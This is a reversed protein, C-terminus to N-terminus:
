KWWGKGPKQQFGWRTLTEKIHKLGPDGKVWLSGGQPTKDDVQLGQRAAFRNLAARSYQQAPIDAAGAGAHAPLAQRPATAATPFRVLVPPASTRGAPAQVGPEIGFDERLRAEFRDEWQDWGQIGDQHSLWLAHVNADHKLSNEADVPLRLPSKTDFPLPRRVDYGYLAHSTGSFEVAVVKGFTMIFANNPGGAELHCIHGTMKKRLAVPERNWTSRAASGLAFEIHDIAKVYRKWFDMRRRDASGGEALKTFFTEIFELKLWDSVMARAQPVVGGWAVASSALWPNGWRLVSADRLGQHLATGPVKAYRDLLLTLGRDCLVENRHLLELLRPMLAQFQADALQTAGRIQALVLERPFWSAKSIGLEQSLLDLPGTDGSLVAQVHPECPHPGFLHKSGIATAVWAPNAHTDRIYGNHKELFERLAVWNGRSEASVSQAFADYTFYCKMMGQYCRRFARPKVALGGVDHLFATLRARHELLCPSGPRHPLCLGWSLLYALRFNELYGSVWYRRVAELVQDAPIPHHAASKARDHMQKLVTDISRVPTMERAGERSGVELLSALYSLATM